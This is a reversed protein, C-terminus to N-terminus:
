GMVSFTILFTLPASLASVIAPRIGLFVFLVLMVLAIVIFFDRVLENFQEDIEESTNLLTVAEFRNNSEEIEKNILDKAARVSKDINATKVRFIDLTISRQIEENKRVFFSQAQDPKPHESIVAIDSLSVTQGELNIRLRRIDQISITDPDISLAFSSSNTTVAGAPFSKLSNQIIPTLQFPSIGYSSVVEPKITIEIETEELGSLNVNDIEPLESLKEKLRNAFTFLSADDVSSILALQLIPQNEFDLKFVNPDTADEPLNRITDMAGQVNDRAIDPDTGSNFEINVISASDRSSSIVKKVDELGRVADEIPITVLSEVDTPNAGPIVTSILVIPIKIEPNLTRPLGMYSSIGIILILFLLLLVLRTNALYKAIFTDALRPDFRLKRLSDSHQNAM